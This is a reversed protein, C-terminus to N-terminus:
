SGDVKRAFTPGETLKWQMRPIKQLSVNVKRADVLIEMLKGHVQPVM